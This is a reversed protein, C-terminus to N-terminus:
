ENEPDYDAQRKRAEMTYKTIDYYDYSDWGTVVEGFLENVTTFEGEPVQEEDRFGIGTHAGVTTLKDYWANVKAEDRMWRFRTPLHDACDLRHMKADAEVPPAQGLFFPSKEIQHNNPITVLLNAPVAEQPTLYAGFEAGVRFRNGLRKLVSTIKSM